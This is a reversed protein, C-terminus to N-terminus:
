TYLIPMRQKRSHLFFMLETIKPQENPNNPNLNFNIADNYNFVNFENDCISFIEIKNLDYPMSILSYESCKDNFTEQFEIDDNNYVVESNENFIKLKLKTSTEFCYLFFTNSLTYYDLFM